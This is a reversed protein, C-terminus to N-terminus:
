YQVNLSLGHAPTNAYVVSVDEPSVLGLEQARNLTLGSTYSLYQQELTSVNSTLTQIKSEAQAHSATHAVAELLFFGYLFLSLAVVAACLAIMRQLHPTATIAIARIHRKM